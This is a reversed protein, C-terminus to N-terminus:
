QKKITLVWADTEGYSGKLDGDTSSTHGAAVFSGDPRGIVAQPVDLQSGGRTHQWEMKGQNDVKIFWADIKGHTATVDGDDSETSAAVLYGGLAGKTIDTGIDEYSGGFLKQWQLVGGGTVKMLLVDLSTNDDSAIYGALMFGGDNSAIIANAGAQLALAQRWVLNGSNDLKAILVHFAREQDATAARFSGGALVYGGDPAVTLAKAWDRDEDNTGGFVTQWVINGNNNLRVVWASEDGQKGNIDNSRTSGAMVCGGDPTAVIASAVDQASGGLTKQWLVTGAENIKVVLADIGKNITKGALMYGGGPSAAVATFEDAGAIMKIWETAGSKNLKILIPASFPYNPNGSFDFDNSQTTGVILYGSDPTAAIANAADYEQGGFNHNFVPLVPTPKPDPQPFYEILKNCSFFSLLLLFSTLKKM